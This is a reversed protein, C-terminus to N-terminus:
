DSSTDWDSMDGRPYKAREYAEQLRPILAADHVTTKDADQFSGDPMRRFKKGDYSFPWPLTRRLYFCGGFLAIVGAIVAFELM